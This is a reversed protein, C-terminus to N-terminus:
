LKLPTVPCPFVTKWALFCRKRAFFVSNECHHVSIGSKPFADGLISKSTSDYKKEIKIFFKNMEFLQRVKASTYIVLIIFDFVNNTNIDM